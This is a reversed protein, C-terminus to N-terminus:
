KVQVDDYGLLALTKQYYDCAHLSQYLAFDVPPIQAARIQRNESNQRMGKADGTLNTYGYWRDVFGPDYNIELIESIKRLYREPDDCFDEYRVYGNKVCMQAYRFCGELYKELPLRGRIISLRNTSLWQPVPHRTLHLQTIDFDEKLSHLLRSQYCPREIYPVAMFDLHAWDRIVLQLGKSEAERAIVRTVEEFPTDQRCEIGARTLGHKSVAQNLISWQQHIKAGYPHIESLLVVGEMCGICRSVLTGGSRALNSFVRLQM